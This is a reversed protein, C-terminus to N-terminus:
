KAYDGLIRLVSFHSKTKDGSTLARKNAPIECSEGLCSLSWTQQLTALPLYHNFAVSSKM